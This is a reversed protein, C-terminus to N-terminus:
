EEESAEERDDIFSVCVFFSKGSWRLETLLHNANGITAEYYFSGLTKNFMISKIQVSLLLCQLMLQELIHKLLSWQQVSLFGLWDKLKLCIVPHM